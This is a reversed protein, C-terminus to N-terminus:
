IAVGLAKAGKHAQRHHHVVTAAEVTEMALCRECLPQVSLQQTRLRQWQSTAYLRRWPRTDTTTM